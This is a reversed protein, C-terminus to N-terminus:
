LDRPGDVHAEQGAVLGKGDGVQDAGLDVQQRLADGLDPDDVDLAKVKLGIAAGVDGVRALDSRDVDRAVFGLAADVLADTKLEYVRLVVPVVTRHVEDWTGVLM